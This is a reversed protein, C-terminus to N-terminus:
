QTPGYYGLKTRAAADQRRMQVVVRRWGGDRRPNSSAYGLVYQSALERAIQQYIAPLEAVAKPFFARGGTERTFQRLVFDAENFGTRPGTERDQLGIAYIAVDSRKALDLVEEFGILSATDEGDSLVVIAQRRIQEASGATTKRLEKLAVYVANHLSTPGNARTQRIARTLAARDDTFTQSVAVRNNFEIVSGLDDPGLHEVFGSAAQQATHLKEEMSASTDLLIALAIPTKRNSFFTMQQKVGDEFILFDERALGAVYQQKKNTVTVTLSVLDVGTRFRPPSEQQIASASILPASILLVAALSTAIVSTAVCRNM